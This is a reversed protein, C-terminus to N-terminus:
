VLCNLSSVYRTLSHLAVNKWTKCYDSNVAGIIQVSIEVVSYSLGRSIL